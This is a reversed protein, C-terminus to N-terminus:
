ICVTKPETKPKIDSVDIHTFTKENETPKVCFVIDIYRSFIQSKILLKKTDDNVHILIPVKSLISQLLELSSEIVSWTIARTYKM